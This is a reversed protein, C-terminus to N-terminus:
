KRQRLDKLWNLRKIRVLKQQNVDLKKFTLNYQKVAFENLEGLNAIKPMHALRGFKTIGGRITM